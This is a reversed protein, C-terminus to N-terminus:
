ADVLTYGRQVTAPRMVGMAEGACIRRAYMLRRMWMRRVVLMRMRGDVMM